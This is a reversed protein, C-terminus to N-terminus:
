VHKECGNTITSKMIKITRRGKWRNQNNTIGEMEVIEKLM